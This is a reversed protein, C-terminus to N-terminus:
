VQNFGTFSPSPSQCRKQFLSALAVLRQFHQGLADVVLRGVPQVVGHGVQQHLAALRFLRQFVVGGGEHENEKKENEKKVNKNKIKFFFGEKGRKRPNEM